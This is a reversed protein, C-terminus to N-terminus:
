RTSWKGTSKGSSWNNMTWLNKGDELKIDESQNWCNNWNNTSSSMRCVIISTYKSDIWVKYTGYYNDSVSYWGDGSGFVYIALKAGDAMWGTTPKIYLLRYNSKIVSSNYKGATVVVSNGSGSSPTVMNNSTFNALTQDKIQERNGTGNNKEGSFNFKNAFNPIKVSYYEYSGDYGLLEVTGAQVWSAGINYYAQVADWKYYNKLYITKYGDIYTSSGVKFAKVNNSNIITEDSVDYIKGACDTVFIDETQNAKTGDSIVFAKAYNPVLFQYIDHSGDKINSTLKEGPFALTDWTTKGTADSSDLYWYYLSVNNWNKNNYFYVTNYKGDYACHQVKGNRDLTYLDGAVLGELLIEPTSNTGDTITFSYADAPVTVKYIHHLPTTDVADGLSIGDIVTTWTDDGNKYTYQLKLNEWEKSNQFYITKANFSLNNTTVGNHEACGYVGQGGGYLQNFTIPTYGTKNAEALELTNIATGGVVPNGYRVNSFAGNYVSEQARVWPYNSQWSSDQNTFQYYTYNVWDGYFVNVNECTLFDAAANTAQKPSNQGTYGVLMGCRRYAYWQYAATVDSFVDLECAVIVNQMLVKASGYKGGIVGGNGTDFDGWMSVLKVSSDVVINKFVHSYEGEPVNDSAIVYIDGVIGGNRMQSNGLTANTVVINEFTCKGQACGVVVGISTTEVRM